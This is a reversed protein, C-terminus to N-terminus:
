RAGREILSGKWDAELFEQPLNFSRADAVEGHTAWCDDYCCPKGEYFWPRGNADKALFNFKPNVVDWQPFTLQEKWMGLIHARKGGIYISLDDECNWTLQFVGQATEVFIRDALFNSNSFFSREANAGNRQIAVPEGALAAELNFAPYNM